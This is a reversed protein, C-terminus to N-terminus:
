GSGTVERHYRDTEVQEGLGYVQPRYAIQYLIGIQCIICSAKILLSLCLTVSLFLLYRLM